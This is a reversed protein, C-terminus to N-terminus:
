LQIGKIKLMALISYVATDRLEDLLKDESTAYKARTAKIQVQALWVDLPLENIPSVRYGTQKGQQMEVLMDCISKFTVDSASKDTDEWPDQKETKFAM